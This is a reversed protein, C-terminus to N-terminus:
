PTLKVEIQSSSSDSFEVVHTDDTWFVREGGNNVLGFASKPVAIDVTEVQGAAVRVREFAALSKLPVPHTRELRKRLDASPKTYALIVEEGDMKGTNAVTCTFRFSEEDADDDNKTTEGGSCKSTFTTLSLGFGFPFLPEGTYYRYTRGPAKSMSYDDMEVEAVYGAPYITLPLKGWRNEDGFLAAGLADGAYTGPRFMEVVAKPQFEPEINLISDIALPGGNVLVLITPIKLRLMETVFDTQIGPLILSDRDYSEHEIDYGFATTGVALVVVDASQAAEIAQDMKGDDSGIFQVGVNATVNGGTNRSRIGDALTVVCDFSKGTGTKNYCVENGYYDEMLEVHSEAHPGIVAVKIGKKLPLIGDNKLLVMGQLAAELSLAQHEKAGLKEAPISTWSVKKPDDFLGVRFRQVLTRRAAARLTSAKLVGHEIANKANRVIITSGAEIDTGNELVRTLAVEDPAWFWPLKTVDRIAGCDSMTLADPQGWTKRMLDTLFKSACNPTGNIGNYSCMVGSANAKKFTREYHPLYTDYLDFTSIVANSHQRQFERSYATFHKLYSNMKHYGNEDVQQMGKVYEAAYAGNLFPDEGPLESARGFRPDRLININPGFGSLGSPLTGRDIYGGNNSLARMETSIVDGKARWLSRNFSAAMAMPSPFITACKGDGLCVSHVGSNTEMLWTYRPLGIRSVNGSPMNCNLTGNDNSLLLVQEQISMDDLLLEIRENFSLSENCYPRSKAEPTMCGQYNPLALTSRALMGLCLSLHFLKM